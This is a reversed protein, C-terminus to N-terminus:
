YHQLFCNLRLVIWEGLIGFHIIQSPTKVATIEEKNSKTLTEKMEVKWPCTPSCRAAAAAPSPASWSGASWRLRAWRRWPRCWRRSGGPPRRSTPPSAWHSSRSTEWCSRGRAWPSRYTSTRGDAVATPGKPFMVITKRPENITLVSTDRDQSASLCTDGLDPVRFLGGFPKSVDAM